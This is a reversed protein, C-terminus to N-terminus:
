GNNDEVIWHPIGKPSLGIFRFKGTGGLMEWHKIVQLQMEGVSQFKANRWSASVHVDPDGHELFQDKSILLRMGDKFDFVHERHLGPRDGDTAEVDWVRELAKPFKAKLQELSESKFEM